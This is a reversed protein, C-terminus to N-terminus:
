SYWLPKRTTPTTEGHSAPRAPRVSARRGVDRLLRLPSPFVFQAGEPSACFMSSGTKWPQRGPSNVSVREPGSAFLRLKQAIPAAAPRLM